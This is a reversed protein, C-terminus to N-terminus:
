RSRSGLSTRSKETYDQLSTFFILLRVMVLDGSEGCFQEYAIAGAPTFTEGVGVDGKVLLTRQRLTEKGRRCADIHATRSPRQVCPTTDGFIQPLQTELGTTNWISPGTRLTYGEKKQRRNGEGPM